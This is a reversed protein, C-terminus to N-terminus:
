KTCTSCEVNILPLRSDYVSIALLLTCYYFFSTTFHLSIHAPKGRSAPYHIRQLARRVARSDPVMYLIMYNFAVLVLLVDM